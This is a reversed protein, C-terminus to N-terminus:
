SDDSIDPLNELKRLWADFLSCKARITDIGTEEAIAIGTTTKKYTNDWNELRKSPATNSGHNIAEPIGYQKIVREIESAQIRLKRALIHSDSFLLAEFEHVALFPIFRRETQLEPFREAVAHKTAKNVIKAIQDPAADPSVKDIGPWEKLRFYDVFTCVCTDARQKLHQGIDNIARSFKVDGGKQGPKSIQTAYILINKQALYPQLVKEIFIQETKGEVIAYVEPYNSM